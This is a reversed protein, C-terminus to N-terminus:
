DRISTDSPILILDNRRLPFRSVNTKQLFGDCDAWFAQYRRRNTRVIKRLEERLDKSKYNYEVVIIPSDSEILRRAGRLVPAESREVDIKLLVCKKESPRNQFYDDLCTQKQSEIQTTLREQVSAVGSWGSNVPNRAFEANEETSEGVLLNEAVNPDSINRSLVSFVESDPEFSFTKSIDPRMSLWASIYGINAGVDVAYGGGGLMPLRIRALALLLGVHQRRFLYLTKSYGDGPLLCLNQGHIMQVPTKGSYNQWATERQEIIEPYTELPNTDDVQM